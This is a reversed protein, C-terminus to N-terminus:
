WEGVFTPFKTVQALYEAQGCVAGAVYQSYTGAAAFYYVHEDMVINADADFYSVWHDAGQFSTQLMLPIRSDVMAVRALCETIYTVIYDSANSSLGATTGFGALNDSAENIPAITWSFLNGSEVFFDLIADIAQYSYELNTSNFFWDDHQLFEFNAKLQM